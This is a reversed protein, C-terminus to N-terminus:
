LTQSAAQEVRLRAATKYMMLLLVVVFVLEALGYGYIAGIPGLLKIGLYVFVVSLIAVPLGVASLAKFRKLAKQSSELGYRGATVLSVIIWACIFAEVGAFEGSLFKPALIPFLIVLGVSYIVVCSINFLSFMVGNRLLLLPNSSRLAVQRALFVQSLSPTIQKIPKLFLKAANLLGVGTPGVMAATLLTHSEHRMSYFIDNIMSWKGGVWSEKLSEWVAGPTTRLPLRLEIQGVLAGILMAASYVVTIFLASQEIQVLLSAGILAALVVSVVIHVRLARMEVRHTYALRVYFEKIIQAASFLVIAVCALATETSIFGVSALAWAGIGSVILGLASLLVLIVLISAVYADRHEEAKDPYLVVMQTLLASNALGKIIQSVAFLIGYIGFESLSMAVILYLGLLFNTAASIVQNMVGVSMAKIISSKGTLIASISRM